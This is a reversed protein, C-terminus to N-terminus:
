SKVENPEERETVVVHSTLISRFDKTLDLPASIIEVSHGVEIPSIETFSGELTRLPSAGQYRPPELRAWTKLAFDIEYLSGTETRFRTKM